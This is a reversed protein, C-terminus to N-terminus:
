GAAYIKILRNSLSGLMSQLTLTGKLSRNTRRSEYPGWESVTLKM